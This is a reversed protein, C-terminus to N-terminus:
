VLDDISSVAEGDKEPDRQYAVQPGADAGVPPEIDAERRDAFPLAEVQGVQDSLVLEPHLAPFSTRRSVDLKWDYNGRVCNRNFIAAGQVLASAFELHETALYRRRHDAKLRQLLPLEELGRELVLLSREGFPSHCGGAAALPRPGVPWPM